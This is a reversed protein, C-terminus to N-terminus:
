SVEKNNDKWRVFEHFVKISSIAEVLYWLARCLMAAVLATLGALAALALVVSFWYGIIEFM